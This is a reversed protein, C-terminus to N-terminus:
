RKWRSEDSLVAKIAAKGKGWEEAVAEVVAEWVEDGGGCDRVIRGAWECLKLKLQPGECTRRIKGGPARLYGAEVGRRTALECMRVGFVVM